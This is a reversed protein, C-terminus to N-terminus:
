AERGTAGAGSSSGTTGPRGRGRHGLIGKKSLAQCTHQEADSLWTAPRAEDAYAPPKPVIVQVDDDPLSDPPTVTVEPPPPPVAPPKMKPPSTPPVADLDVEAASRREITAPSDADKGEEQGERM